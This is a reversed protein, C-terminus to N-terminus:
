SGGDYASHRMPEGDFSAGFDVNRDGDVDVDVVVFASTVTASRDSITTCARMAHYAQRWPWPVRALEM